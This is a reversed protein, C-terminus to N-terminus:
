PRYLRIWDVELTAPFWRKVGRATRPRLNAFYDLQISQGMARPPLAQRKNTYFWVKGDIYGTISRSNWQIAFTHWKTLDTKVRRAITTPQQGKGYHLYFSTGKRMGDDGYTEMWDVEGGGDWPKGTAPWLLLNANYCACARNLKVRAEWRGYKRAGRRWGVAGTTRNQRGTIKMVGKGVTIARPTRIGHESRPDNEPSWDRLNLRKGTFEDRAIPKGWKYRKAATPYGAAAAADGGAPDPEGPAIGRKGSDPMDPIPVGTARDGAASVTSVRGSPSGEDLLTASVSTAVAVATTALIAARHRRTFQM